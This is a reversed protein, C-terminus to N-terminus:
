FELDADASCHSFWWLQKKLNSIQRSNSFGYNSNRYSLEIEELYDKFRSLM